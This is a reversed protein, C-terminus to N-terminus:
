LRVEVHGRTLCPAVASGVKDNFDDVGGPSAYPERAEWSGGSVGPACPYTEDDHLSWRPYPVKRHPNDRPAGCRAARPFAQPFRHEERAVGAREHMVKELPNGVRHTEIGFRVRAPLGIHMLDFIERHAAYSDAVGAEPYLRRPHYEFSIFSLECLVCLDLMRELVLLEAGECDSAIFGALDITALSVTTYRNKSMNRAGVTVEPSTGFGTAGSTDGERNYFILNASQNYAAAHLVEVRRGGARLRTTLHRLKSEHKPNPEFAFACITHDDAFSPGFYEDFYGAALYPSHPFVRKGEMLFRLHLGVNSGVDLFVHRCGDALRNRRVRSNVPEHHRWASSLKRGDHQPPLSSGLSGLARLLVLLM